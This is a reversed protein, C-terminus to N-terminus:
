SSSRSGTSRDFRTRNGFPEWAETRRTRIGSCTARCGHKAGYHSPWPASNRRRAMGSEPPRPNSRFSGWALSGTAQRRAACPTPRATHFRRTRTGGTYRESALFASSQAPDTSVSEHLGGTAGSALVDRSSDNRPTSDQREPQNRTVPTGRLVNSPPRATSPPGRRSRNPYVSCIVRLGAATRWRIVSQTNYTSRISKALM